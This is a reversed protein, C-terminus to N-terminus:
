GNETKYKFPLTPKDLSEPCIVKVKFFGFPNKIVKTVDGKFYKPKGVPMYYNKMSHPYLSNIDYSRINYGYPKYCETFGGLYSQKITYYLRSLIKPIPKQTDFFRCRYIAFALSPLTPYKTMDISYLNHILRHFNLIIKYLCICDIKCYEYLEKRLVWDKGEYSRKYENYNKVSDSSNEEGFVSSFYSLEPVPGRYNPDFDKSNLFLFPFYSKPTNIKFSKSLKRLSNPLILYSDHFYLTYERKQEGHSKFTFTIKIFM